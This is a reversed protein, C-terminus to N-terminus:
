VGMLSMAGGSVLPVTLNDDVLLPALEVLAAVAAGAALEWQFSVVEAASLVGVVAISVVVFALSGWPSKGWVRVGGMRGGVLSAVPDGLSLFFLAVIAVTKDFVLFAVVASVAIYTAGTIRRDEAEKLLPRLAAVLTNNLSPIRLRVTEILLALGSLTALLIVMVVSDVFIALLPIASCAGMHFLRRWVTVTPAPSTPLDLLRQM